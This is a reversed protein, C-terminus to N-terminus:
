AGWNRTVYDMLTVLMILFWLFGFAAWLWTLRTAYKVGMFFLVVLTAKFVAIFLMVIINAGPIHTVTTLNVYAAGVTLFLFLVLTAFVRLYVMTPVIHHTHEAHETHQAM